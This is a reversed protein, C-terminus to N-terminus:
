SADSAAVFAVVKRMVTPLAEADLDSPSVFRHGAPAAVQGLPAAVFVQLRLAFHTFVHEVKGPLRRYTAAIPAFAPASETDFDSTWPTGPLETMGGLLGKPPRTRVLVHGDARQIFFAAGERRPREAKPARRPLTEEMGGQHAACGPRLPCLACAPRKPRCVMSGLDMMAQAFDGARREPTLAEAATRIAVKAAPLPEEIARLRAVVREVNGDIVVARRGFAIAAIAAATYAGIGPLARLAAEEQPFRGAHAASVERACAHLNRARSYYGLGAWAKMVEDIPAAALAGVDPWRSLFREFYGKVAEVGTQQLMIESLWVAYPDAVVGPLARWPLARRHRDYWALLERAENRASTRSM